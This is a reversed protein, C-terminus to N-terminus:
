EPRRDRAAFFVIMDWANRIGVVLLLALGAAIAAFSPVADLFISLAAALIVGYGVIPMLAYWVQDSWEVRRRAVRWGVLMSYVVGSAGGAAFVAALSRWDLAPVLATISALVITALHIVTPTLFVRIHPAHERTLFGAGISAVVFMAGILTAAATGLLVYFDHWDRFAAAASGAM